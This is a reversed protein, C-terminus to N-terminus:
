FTVCLVNNKKRIYTGGGGSIEFIWHFIAYLLVAPNKYIFVYRLNDQKKRLTLSKTFLFTVYCLTDHNKFIFALKLFKMFIGYRWTYSKKYIFVNRLKKQKKHIYVHANDKSEPQRVLKWEYVFALKKAFRKIYVFLLFIM